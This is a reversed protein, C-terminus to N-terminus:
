INVLFLKSLEKEVKNFEAFTTARTNINVAIVLGVTPYVVLWSMAGKSVGGHHFRPLTASDDLPHPHNSNSRWGHAYSQANVEGNTLTQPALMMQRTTPSIFDDNLWANGIKVLEASTSYLGGGPLRQSLDFQRWTRFEGDRIEYFTAISKDTDLPAGGTRKLGLPQLVNEALVQLYSKRQNQAMVAGVLNVDYSTYLFDTGPEYLPEPNADFMELGASVSDYAVCGCLSFYLGKIDRNSEYDVIGATHSSLMRLTLNNWWPQPLNSVYSSIPADLTLVGKDILRALATATVAKSTSGIRFRTDRHTPIRSTVDAWGVAGTWVLKGAVGVAATIGPFGQQARHEVLLKVAAESIMAFKPDETSSSVPTKVETPNSMWPGYGGWLPYSTFALFGIVSIFLVLGFLKWMNNRLGHMALNILHSHYVLWARM